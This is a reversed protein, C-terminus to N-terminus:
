AGDRVPIRPLLTATADLLMEYIAQDSTNLTRIREHYYREAQRYESKSELTVREDFVVDGFRAQYCTARVEVAVRERYRGEFGLEGRGHVSRSTVLIDLAGAGEYSNLVMAAQQAFPLPAMNRRALSDLIEDRPVVEYGADQLLRAMGFDLADVLDANLNDERVHVFIRGKGGDGTGHLSDRFDNVTAQLGDLIGAAESEVSDEAHRPDPVVHRTAASCAACLVTLLVLLHRTKM